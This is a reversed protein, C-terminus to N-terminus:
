VVARVTLIVALLWGCMHPLQCPIRLDPLHYPLGPVQACEPVDEYSMVWLVRGQVPIEGIRLCHLLHFKHLYHVHYQMDLM